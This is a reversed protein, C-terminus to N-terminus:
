LSRELAPRPVVSPCQGDPMHATTIPNVARRKPTHASVRRPGSPCWAPETSRKPFRLPGPAAVRKSRDCPINCSRAVKGDRAMEHAAAIRVRACQLAFFSICKPQIHSPISGLHPASTCQPFRRSSRMEILRNADVPNSANQSNANKYKRECQISQTRKCRAVLFEPLSIRPAFGHNSVSSHSESTSTSKKRVRRSRVPGM